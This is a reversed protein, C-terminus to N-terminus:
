DLDLYPNALASPQPKYSKGQSNQIDCFGFNM